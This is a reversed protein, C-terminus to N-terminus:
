WRYILGVGTFFDDAADNLGFGARWDLQLDKTISLAVGGDMYHQQVETEAGDPIMCFWEFYGGMKETLGFGVGIAQSYELYADGSGGDIARNFATQGALTMGNDLEWAYIYMVTPLTEDGGFVDDGSPVSIELILATEPAKDEQATLAIKFGVSMDESGKTKAGAATVEEAYSWALRLELWEAYIGKRLLLEPYTKGGSGDNNDTFTWGMELQNVGLGVTTSAEIFDPRDGILPEDMSAQTATYDGWSWNLLTGRSLKDEDQAMAATSFALTSLMGISLTHKIFKSM